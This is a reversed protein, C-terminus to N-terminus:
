LQKILKAPIGAYVANSPVDKTVVANTGIISNTGIRVGPMIAVNEGIWVNQEIIVPGKSYLPRDGARLVQEESVLNGHQHDTIFVNSAILVNDHIELRNISGFHCNSGCSVNKGIIIQPNFKESGYKSIAELRLGPGGRFGEDVQIFQGGTIYCPHSVKVSPAGTAAIFLSTAFKNKQKLSKKYIRGVLLHYIRVLNIM